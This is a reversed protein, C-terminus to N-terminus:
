PRNESQNRPVYLLRVGDSFLIHADDGSDPTVTYIMSGATLEGIPGDIRVDGPSEIHSLDTNMVARDTRVHYGDSTVIQVSQDFTTIRTSQDIFGTQALVDYVLGEPTILRAAMDEGHIVDTNESDPFLREAALTIKIGDPTVGSYTPSGLRQERALELVSLGEFVSREGNQTPRALLFLLSMLGLAILPLIIKAAVVVRSYTNDYDRM